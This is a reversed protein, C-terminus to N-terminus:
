KEALNETIYNSVHEVNDHLRTLESDCIKSFKDIEGNFKVVEERILKMKQQLETSTKKDNEKPGDDAM